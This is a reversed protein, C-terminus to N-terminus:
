GHSYGAVASMAQQQSTQTFSKGSGTELKSNLAASEELTIKEHQTGLAPAVAVEPVLPSHHFSFTDYLHTVPKTMSNLGKLTKMGLGYSSGMLGSIVVSVITAQHWFAAVAVASAGPALHIAACALAAPGIWPALAIGVAAGIAGAVLGAKVSLWKSEPEQAPTPAIGKARLTRNREFENDIARATAEAGAEQGSETFVHIAYVGGAAAFMSLVGSASLVAPLAIGAIAIGGLLLAGLALGALVGPVVGAFGRFRGGLAGWAIRENYEKELHTIEQQRRLRHQELDSGQELSQVKGLDPGDQFTLEGHINSDTQNFISKLLGREIGFTLGLLGFALAGGV